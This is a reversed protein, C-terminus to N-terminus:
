VLILERMALKYQFQFTKGGKLKLWTVVEALLVLLKIMMVLNPLNSSSFYRLINSLFNLRVDKWLRKVTEKFFIFEASNFSANPAKMFDFTRSIVVHTLIMQRMTHRLHPAILALHTVQRYFKGIGYREAYEDLLWSSFPSLSILLGMAVSNPFMADFNIPAETKSSMVARTVEYVLANIRQDSTADVLISNRDFSLLSVFIQHYYPCGQCEVGVLADEVPSNDDYEEDEASKKEIGQTLKNIWNTLRDSETKFWVDYANKPGQEFSEKTYLPHDALHELQWMLFAALSRKSYSGKLASLHKQHFEDSIQFASKIRELPDKLKLKMKTLPVLVCRLCQSYLPSMQMSFWMMMITMM